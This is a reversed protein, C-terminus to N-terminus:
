WAGKRCLGRMDCFRCVSEIGNAPLPAGNGIAQIQEGIRRELAEQWEPYDPAAVDGIKERTLELAVYHGASLRADALLGYFALQHDEGKKLRSSLAPQAATKYDLVAREGDQNQDIRDVRGHLRIDGGPWNLVREMQLEGIVFQWGLAERQNAWDLYAPMVKQWRTYYGLAAANRRLEKDFIQASLEALLQRRQDLPTDRTSVADHYAALIEHLWGGYDRKEPLDSLDALANLGLMRTAFFQYPCAMLVNYGSASLSTPLLAAASPMPMSGIHPVLTSTPRAQRQQVLLPLSSRALTLQLREIWPSVPNPEGDLMAQWSLVIDAGSALLETFDRLQQRQRTERTALGLERRVANAFFLTETPQSPLHAADIGVMLVADFSRLRAGNLPLMIVRQDLQPAVFPAAELQLDLFARWESFSFSAGLTACESEILDFQALVQEGAADAALAARMGLADLVTMSSAVWECLSRSRQFKGAQERLAAFLQREQPLSQLALSVADWGGTVNHRRLALEIAMVQAGRAGQEFLVFPSKLFDLLAGTEARSSVLEFLAALASAARTTSLKWGTEDVVYVQARELLARLRRAVVRDQAIIAIRSKGAALWTLIAQAGAVAEDELSVGPYLAVNDLAAPGPALTSASPALALAADDEVLEPWAAAFTPSIAGVRWDLLMFTVPQRQAWASLFASELPDAPVPAIWVLPQEAQHALLMMQEFRAVAADRGDLQSKWITWVLQSEDSLLTRAAPSLQELASRWRQEGSQPLARIAPLLSGTLEDALTLLTQALPLLDTNRRAQFLKKLWGHQRLESYLAMLRESPGAVSAPPPAQLNLWASVTSIAPPAFASGLLEALHQKLLRAHEFTPVLVRCDSFDMPNAGSAQASRLIAILREAAEPWFLRSPSILQPAQLM